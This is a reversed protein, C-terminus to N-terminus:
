ISAHSHPLRSVSNCLKENARRLKLFSYLIALLQGHTASPTAPHWATTTVVTCKCMGHVTRRTEWPRCAGIGVRRCGGLSGSSATATATGTCTAPCPSRAVATTAAATALLTCLPCPSPPSLVAVLRLLSSCSIGMCCHRCGHRPQLTTTGTAGHWRVVGLSARHVRRRQQWVGIGRWGKVPLRRGVGRTAASATAKSGHRRRLLSAGPKPRVGAGASVATAAAAVM